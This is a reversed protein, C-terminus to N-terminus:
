DTIIQQALLAKLIRKTSELVRKWVGGTHSATPPNFIWRIEKQRLFLKIRQQNWETLAERLEHEGGSVNAGNNSRIFEPIGRRAIFRRLADILSDTNLSHAIELHVAQSALCTFLCGYCKVQSRKQKTLLPGFYDIGVFTFPPRKHPLHESPLDAMIQEGQPATRRRHKFCSRMVRRVAVSGRM